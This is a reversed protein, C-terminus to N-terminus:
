RTMYICRPLDPGSKGIGRPPGMLKKRTISKASMKYISLLVNDKAASLFIHYLSYDFNWNKQMFPYYIPKNDYDHDLKVGGRFRTCGFGDNKKIKSLTSIWWRKRKNQIWRRVYHIRFFFMLIEVTYFVLSYYLM